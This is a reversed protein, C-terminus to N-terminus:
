YNILTNNNECKRKKIFKKNILMLPFHTYECHQRRRRLRRHQHTLHGHGLHRGPPAGQGRARAGVAAKRGALPRRAGARHHVHRRRRRRAAPVAPDPPHPRLPLQPQLLLWFLRRDGDARDTRREAGPVRPKGASEGAGDDGGRVVRDFFFRCLLVFM